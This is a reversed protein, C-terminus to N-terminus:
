WGGGPYLHGDFMNWSHDYTRCVIPRMYSACEAFYTIANVYQEYEYDEIHCLSPCSFSHSPLSPLSTKGKSVLDEFWCVEM